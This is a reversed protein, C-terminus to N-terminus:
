LREKFKEPSWIFVKTNDFDEVKVELNSKRNKELTITSEMSLQGIFTQDIMKTSFQHSFKIDRNFQSAIENAEIIM